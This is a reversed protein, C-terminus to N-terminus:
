SLRQLALGHRLELRRCILEEVVEGVRSAGEERREVMGAEDGMRATM